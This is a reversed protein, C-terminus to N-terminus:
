FFFRVSGAFINANTSDGNLKPMTRMYEFIMRTNTNWYWNLGLTIDQQSSCEAIDNFNLYSWQAFIEWDGFSDVSCYGDSRETFKMGTINQPAGIVGGARDYERYAKTLFYRLEGYGGYVTKKGGYSATQFEAQVGFRNHNYAIETGILNVSKCSFQPLVLQPRSNAFTIGPKLKIEQSANSDAFYDYTVSGGLHLYRKGDDSYFPLMSLRTNYIIGPSSDVFSKNEIFAKNKDTFVAAFWRVRKDAFLQTSSVGVRRSLSLFNASGPYAMATTFKPSGMYALGTEVRYHGVRVYDL